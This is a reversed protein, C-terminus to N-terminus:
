WATSRAVPARAGGGDGGDVSAGRTAGTRAPARQGAVESRKQGARAASLPARSPPTARSSPPSSLSWEAATQTPAAPTPSGAALFVTPHTEAVLARHWAFTDERRGTSGESGESRRFFGPVKAMELVEFQRLSAFSVYLSPSSFGVSRRNAPSIYVELSGPSACGPAM